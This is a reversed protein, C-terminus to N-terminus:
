PLWLRHLLLLTTHLQTRYSSLIPRPMRFILPDGSRIASSTTFLWEPQVLALVVFGPAMFRRRARTEIRQIALWALYLFGSHAFEKRQWLLFLQIETRPM